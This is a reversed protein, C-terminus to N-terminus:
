YQHEWIVRFIKDKASIGHKGGRTIDSLGAMFSLTDNEGLVKDYTLWANKVKRSSNDAQKLKWYSGHLGIKDTASAYYNINGYYRDASAGMYDGMIDNHYTWGARYSSHGYWPKGTHAAELRMDWTGDYSLRPIYIGGRYAPRSPMYNAQDEGYWEGYIQLGPMRWRFDVGAM